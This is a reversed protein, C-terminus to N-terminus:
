LDIHGDDLRRTCCRLQMQCNSLRCLSCLSACVAQENHCVGYVAQGSLCQQSEACIVERMGMDCLKLMEACCTVVVTMCDSTM